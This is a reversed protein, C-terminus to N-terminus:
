AAKPPPFIALSDISKFLRYPIFTGHCLSIIPVSMSSSIVVFEKKESYKDRSDISESWLVKKSQERCLWGSGETLLQTSSWFLIPFHTIACYCFRNSDFYRTWLSLVSRSFLYYDGLEIRLPFEKLRFEIIKTHHELFLDFDIQDGVQLPRFYRVSQQNEHYKYYSGDSSCLAVSGKKSIGLAKPSKPIHREADMVGITVAGCSSETQPLALITISVSKLTGWIVEDFMITSFASELGNSDFDMRTIVNGEIKFHEPNRCVLAPM